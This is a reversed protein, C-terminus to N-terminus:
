PTAPDNLPATAAVLQDATTPESAMMEWPRDFVAGVGVHADQFLRAIVRELIITPPKLAEAANLDSASVRLVVSAFVKHGITLPPDSALIEEFVQAGGIALVHPPRMPDAQLKANALALQGSTLALNEWRPSDVFLTTDYKLDFWQM